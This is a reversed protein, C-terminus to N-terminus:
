KEKKKFVKELVSIPINRRITEVAVLIKAAFYLANYIKSVM